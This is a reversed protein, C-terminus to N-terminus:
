FGTCSAIAFPGSAQSTRPPDNGVTVSCTVSGGSAGTTVTLSGGKGLGKVDQAHSWPLTAVTAQSSSMNGGAWSTYSVTVDKADGTVEYKVTVTKKAEKSISAAIAACGGAMLIFLALLVWPWKRRRRRPPAYQPAYQQPDQPYPGAMPTTM